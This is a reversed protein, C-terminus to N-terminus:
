SASQLNSKDESYSENEPDSSVVMSKEVSSDYNSNADLSHISGADNEDESDVNVSPISHVSAQPVLNTAAGDENIPVELLIEEYYAAERTEKLIRTQEMMYFERAMGSMKDLDVSMISHNVMQKYAATRQISDELKQKTLNALVRGNDAMAISAAALSKRSAEAVKSAKQGMPRSCGAGSSNGAESSNGAAEGSSEVAAEEEMEHPTSSRKRTM